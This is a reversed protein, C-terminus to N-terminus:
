RGEDARDRLAGVIALAAIAATETRLVAAGLDVRDGAAALEADSWGGEPGVAISRDAASPVRGGPEAVVAGPLVEIAPEPGSVETAWVRRSQRTAEDAVRQLRRLHHEVRALKWRVVSREAHLLVIRRAGLESAKQVMWELRDGKPMAAALVLPRADQETVVSTTPVVAFSSPSRRVAGLRWSGCGDTVSVAEGDRLRLVRELHHLVEDDLEIPGDSPLSAPSVTVQAAASRRAALGRRDGPGTM